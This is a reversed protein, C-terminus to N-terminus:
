TFCMGTECFQVLDLQAGKGGSPKLPADALPVGYKTLWLWPWKQQIEKEHECARAFDEPVNEKMFLWLDDDRNPCMWCLSPPPTPLGYDEVCQICMQKTMLMEILPYRRCWKGDTIKMRRAAEEISIGMWMDVGRKTLYKEGYKANLFRQVVERKWKDSCFAPSKGACLGNEDRGNRTSFYGPLPEDENAGVLDYTAYLSKPVIHYQVEMEDCLKKIHAAQYAFVNSAERETDSMVIIDPKPLAGAHILCILANSQTGGGSSLVNLREPNHKFKRRPILQKMFGSM